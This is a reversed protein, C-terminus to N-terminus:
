PKTCDVSSRKANRASNCSSTKSCKAQPWSRTTSITPCYCSWMQPWCCRTSRRLATKTQTVIWVGVTCNAFGQVCHETWLNRSADSSVFAFEFPQFPAEESSSVSLKPANGKASAFPAQQWESATVVNVMWRMYEWADRPSDVTPRDGTIPFTPGVPLVGRSLEDIAQDAIEALKWKRGPPPPSADLMRKWVVFNANVSWHGGYLRSPEILWVNERLVRTRHESALQLVVDDADLWRDTRLARFVDELQKKQNDKDGSVIWALHPWSDNTALRHLVKLFGHVRILPLYIQQWFAERDKGTDDLVLCERLPPDLETLMKARFETTSGDWYIAEAAVGTPTQLGSAEGLGFVRDRLGARATGVWQPTSGVAEGVVGRLRFGLALTQVFCRIAERTDTSGATGPVPGGPLAELAREVDASIESELRLLPKSKATDGGALRYEQIRDALPRLMRIAQDRSKGDARLLMLSEGVIDELLPANLLRNLVTMPETGPQALNVYIRTAVDFRCLTADPWAPDLGTGGATRGDRLNDQALMARHAASFEGSLAATLVLAAHQRRARPRILEDFVREKWADQRYYHQRLHPFLRAFHGQEDFQKAIAYCKGLLSADRQHLKQLLSREHLAVFWDISRRPDPLEYGEAAPVMKLLPELVDSKPPAAAGLKGRVHDACEKLFEQPSHSSAQILPEFAEQTQGWTEPSLTFLRDGLLRMAGLTETGEAWRVLNTTRGLRALEKHCERMEDATTSRLRQHLANRIQVADAEPVIEGLFAFRQLQGTVDPPLRGKLLADATRVGNRSAPLTQRVWQLFTRDFRAKPLPYSSLLDVLGGGDGGFLSSQSALSFKRLEDLTLRSSDADPQLWRLEFERRLFYRVEAKGHPDGAVREAAELAQGTLEPRPDALYAEVLITEPSTGQPERPVQAAASTTSLLIGIVAVNPLYRTDLMTM